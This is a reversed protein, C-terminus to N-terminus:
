PRMRYLEIYRNVPSLAGDLNYKQCKVERNGYNNTIEDDCCIANRLRGYGDLYNIKMGNHFGSKKFYIDAKIDDLESNDLMEDYLAIIANHKDRSRINYRPIYVLGDIYYMMMGRHLLMDDRMFQQINDTLAAYTTSLMLLKNNILINALFGSVLGDYKIMNNTKFVFTENSFCNTLFKRLFSDYGNM